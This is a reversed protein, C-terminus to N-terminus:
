LVRHKLIVANTRSMLAVQTELDSGCDQLHVMYCLEPDGVQAELQYREWYVRMKMTPELLAM